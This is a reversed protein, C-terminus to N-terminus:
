DANDKICRVSLGNKKPESSVGRTYVGIELMKANEENEDDETSSWAYLGEEAFLYPGEVHEGLYNTFGDPAREGTPIASFGFKDRDDNNESNWHYKIKAMITYVWLNKDLDALEKVTALLTEYEDASPLHWNEPCADKAASWSYLRGGVDCNSDKDDYCWNNGKLSPTTSEKSYNLNQAMWVQEGIQTTKYKKGDRSDTMEGYQFDPNFYADLPANWNWSTINVWGKESCYYATTEADVRDGVKTSNCEKGYTDIEQRTANQWKLNRCIYGTIKNNIYDNISKVEGERKTTCGDYGLDKDNKDAEIWKGQDEDYKYVASTIDGNKIEGDDGKNWGYTDKEIDSAIVWAGDKCILRDKTEYRDSKKNTVKVVKGDNESKCPDLSYVGYWFDQVFKEFEPVDGMKWDEIKKRIASLDQESAWDAMKAATKEDDWTGDKEIDSAFDALRVSLESEKLDGQMLISMALLAANGEGSSLIDLDESNAFDGTIGFAKLIEKSAQKKAESVSNGKTTLYLAREYELHTLLNINVKERDSLDVLANLTIQTSSKNGSVENLYFGNAELLAYQSALSVSSVSFEGKDNSIKGKFSKGTQVLSESELEQVTVSSGKVFPGKQSIGSITKKTISIVENTDKAPEDKKSSSSTDKSNSSTDGKSSSSKEKSDSSKGKSSSSKDKNSSSSEIKDDAPNDLPIWEGDECIYDAKKDKVFVTDGAADKNCKELDDLTKVVSVDKTVNSSVGSDDDGCGSLMFAAVIPASLASLTRVIPRKSSSGFMNKM